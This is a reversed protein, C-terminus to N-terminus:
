RSSNTASRCPFAMLLKAAHSRTVLPYAKPATENQLTLRNEMAVDTYAPTRGCRTCM